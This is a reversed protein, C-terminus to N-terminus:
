TVAHMRVKAEPADGHPTNGSSSQCPLTLLLSPVRESAELWPSEARVQVARLVSCPLHLCWMHLGINTVHSADSWPHPTANGKYLEWTVLVVNHGQFSPKPVAPSGGMDDCGAIPTSVGVVWPLTDGRSVWAIRLDRTAGRWVGGGVGM